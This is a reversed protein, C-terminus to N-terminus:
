PLSPVLSGSQQTATPRTRLLDQRTLPCTSQHISQGDVTDSPCNNRPVTGPPKHSGLEEGWAQRKEGLGNRHLAEDLVVATGLPRLDVASRLLPQIHSPM